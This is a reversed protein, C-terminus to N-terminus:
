SAKGALGSSGQSLAVESATYTHLHVPHDHGAPFKSPSNINRKRCYPGANFTFRLSHENRINIQGGMWEGASQEWAELLVLFSFLTLLALLHWLNFSQQKRWQQESWESRWGRSGSECVPKGERRSQSVAARKERCDRADVTVRFWLARRPVRGHTVVAGWHHAALQLGAREDVALFVLISAPLMSVACRFM